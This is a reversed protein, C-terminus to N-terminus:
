SDKTLIRIALAKDSAGVFLGFLGKCDRLVEARVRNRHLIKMSGYADYAATTGHVCTIAEETPQYSRCNRPAKGITKRKGGIQM